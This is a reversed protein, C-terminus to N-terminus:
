RRRRCTSTPRSGLNETRFRWAIQLQGFNSASRISRRMRTAGLDGGTHWEGGQAGQQAALTVPLLVAFFLVVAVFLIVFPVLEKQSARTVGWLSGEHQGTDKTDEHNRESRWRILRLQLKLVKSTTGKGGEM